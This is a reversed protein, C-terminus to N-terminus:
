WPSSADEDTHKSLWEKFHLLKPLGVIPVSPNTIIKDVLKEGEANTVAKWASKRTSRTYKKFINRLSYIIDSVAPRADTSQGM